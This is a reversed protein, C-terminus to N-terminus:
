SALSSLWFQLRLLLSLVMRSISSSPMMMTVSSSLPLPCPKFTSYQLTKEFRINNEEKTPLLRSVQNKVQIKIIKAKSLLPMLVSPLDLGGDSAGDVLASHLLILFLHPSSTKANM